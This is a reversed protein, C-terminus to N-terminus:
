TKGGIHYGTLAHLERPKALLVPALAAIPQFRGTARLFRFACTGMSV